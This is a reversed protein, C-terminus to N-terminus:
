IYNGNQTLKNTIKIILETNKHVHRRIKYKQTCEPNLSRTNEKMKILYTLLEFTFSIAEFVMKWEEVGALFKSFHASM